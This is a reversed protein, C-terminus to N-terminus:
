RKAKRKKARNSPWFPANAWTIGNTKIRPKPFEIVNPGPADASALYDRLGEIEDALISSLIKVRDVPSAHHKEFLANLFAHIAIRISQKLRSHLM